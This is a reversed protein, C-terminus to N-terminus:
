RRFVADQFIETVDETVDQGPTGETGCITM